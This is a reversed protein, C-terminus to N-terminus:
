RQAPSAPLDIVWAVGRQGDARPGVHCSRAGMAQARVDLHRLGRGIHTANLDFGCGNDQVRVLCGDATASLSMVVESAGSHKLANGLAEQVGRMLQLAQSPGLPPLEPLAPDVQWGLTLGLAAFRPAMRYRLTGLLTLPDRQSTDLSDITTRLEDLGDQLTASLTAPEIQGSRAQKLASVLHLGLGDHLDRLVRSREQARAQEQEADRRQAYHAEIERRQADVQAQLSDSLAHARRLALWYRRALLWGASLFLPASEYQRSLHVALPHRDGALHFQLVALAVYLAILAVPLWLDLRQMRWALRLMRWQGWFVMALPIVVARRLWPELAEPRPGLLWATLVLGSGWFWAEELWRPRYTPDESRSLRLAFQAFLVSSWLGALDDILHRSAEDMPVQALGLHLTRLGWIVFVIGFWAFEHRDTGPAWLLLVYLGLAIGLAGTILTAAQQLWAQRQWRTRLAAEDGIIAESLGATLSSGGMVQLLVQQPRDPQWLAAPWRHLTPVQGQRVLAALELGQVGVPQGNLRLQLLPGAGPLLLAAPPAGAPQPPVTLAIWYAAPEPLRLPLAVTQWAPGPWPAPAAAADTARSLHAQTVQHPSLPQSFAPLTGTLLLLLPVLVRALWALRRGPSLWVLGPTSPRLRTMPRHHM